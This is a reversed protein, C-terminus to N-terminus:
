VEKISPFTYLSKRHKDLTKHKKLDNFREIFEDDSLPKKKIEEKVPKIKEAKKTKRHSKRMAERELEFM